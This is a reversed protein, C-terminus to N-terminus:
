IKAKLTVALSHKGGEEKYEVKGKCRDVAFGKVLRSAADPPEKYRDKMKADIGVMNLTITLGDTDIEIKPTEGEAPHDKAECLLAFAFLVAEEKSAEVAPLVSGIKVPVDANPDAAHLLGQAKAIANDLEVGEGEEAKFAESYDLILKKAKVISESNEESIGQMNKVIVDPQTRDILEVLMQQQEPELRTYDVRRVANALLGCDEVYGKLLESNRRLLSVSNNVGELMQSVLSGHLAARSEVLKLQSEDVGGGGGGKAAADKAALLEAKHTAVQKRLDTIQDNASKYRAEWDSSLQSGSKAMQAESELGEVRAKLDDREHIIDDYTGRIKSLQAELTNARELAEKEGSARADRDAKLMSMQKEHADRDGSNKLMESLKAELSARADMADTMQADTEELQKKLNTVSGESAQLKGTLTSIDDKAKSLEAELKVISDQMQKTAKMQEAVAAEAEDGGGLKAIIARGKAVEQVLDGREKGLQALQLNKQKVKDNLEKEKGGFATVQERLTNLETTAAAVKEDRAKIESQIEDERESLMKILDDKEKLQRAVTDSEAGRIAIRHEMEKLQRQLTETERRRDAEIAAEMRKRERELEAPSYYTEKEDLEKQLKKMEEERQKLLTRIKEADSRAGASAEHAAQEQVQKMQAKLKRNEEEFFAVKGKLTQLEVEDQTRVEARLGAQRPQDTVIGGAPRGSLSSPAGPRQGSTPQGPRAAASPAAGRAAPAAQRAPAAKPKPADGSFRAKTMGFTIEDGDNLTERDIDKDNVFTGNTSGLDMLIWEGGESWIKAHKSSVGADGIKVQCSSGRGIFTEDPPLDFDQNELSGTLIRLSAM